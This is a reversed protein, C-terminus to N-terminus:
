VKSYENNSSSESESDSEILEEYCYLDIPEVQVDLMDLQLVVDDRINETYM